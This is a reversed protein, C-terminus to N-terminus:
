EARWLSDPIEVALFLSAHSKEKAELTPTRVFGVVMTSGRGLHGGWWVEGAEGGM